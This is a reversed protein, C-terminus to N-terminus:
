TKIQNKEVKEQLKKIFLDQDYSSMQDFRYELNELVDDSRNKNYEHFRRRQENTILKEKLLREETFKEPIAFLDIRLSKIEANPTVLLAEENGIECIYIFYQGSSRNKCVEM